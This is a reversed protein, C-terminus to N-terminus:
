DGFVSEEPRVGRARENAPKCPGILIRECSEIVHARFMVVGRRPEWGIGERRGESNRYSNVCTDKGVLTEEWTARIFGM